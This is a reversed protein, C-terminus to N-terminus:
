GYQYDKRVTGQGSFSLSPFICVHKKKGKEGEFLRFLLVEILEMVLYFNQPDEYVEYLKLIHPHDIALLNAVERRLNRLGEGAVKEQPIVKIAVQACLTFVHGLRNLM